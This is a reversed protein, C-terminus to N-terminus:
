RVRVEAKLNAVGATYRDDVVSFLLAEELWDHPAGDPDHSAATLTYEQPCLRCPFTFDVEATEEDRRPGIEVRELETNTGYVSVGIRSRILIGAVPNEVLARFRLKVRVTITEGSRVTATPAGGEDLIELGAIEVRGDGHRASPAIEAARRGARILEVMRRRHNALVLGPDGQEVIRGDELAIVVDCLRELLALDHSAVVIVADQRRLMQLKRICDLQAAADLTALAHDLLLVRPRAEIAAALEQAARPGIEVLVAPPTAEVKGKEPRARGAALRLLTGKGSGDPGALGAITADDLNLSVSRLPALSVEEFRLSM